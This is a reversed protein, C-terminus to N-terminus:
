RIEKAHGSLSLEGFLHNRAIGSVRMWRHLRNAVRRLRPEAMQRTGARRQDGPRYIRRSRRAAWRLANRGRRDVRGGPQVSGTGVVIRVDSGTDDALRELREMERRAVARGAPHADRAMRGANGVIGEAMAIVIREDVDVSSHLHSTCCTDCIFEWEVAAGAPRVVRARYRPDGCCLARSISAEGAPYEDM